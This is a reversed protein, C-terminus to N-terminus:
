KERGKKIVHKSSNGDKPYGKTSCSVQISKDDITTETKTNKNIGKGNACVVKLVM